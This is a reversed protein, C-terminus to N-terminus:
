SVFGANSGVLAGVISSGCVIFYITMITVAGAREAPSWRKWDSKMDRMRCRRIDPRDIVVEGNCWVTVGDHSAM